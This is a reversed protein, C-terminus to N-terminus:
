DGRRSKGPTLPELTNLFRETTEVGRRMHGAIEIRVAGLDDGLV